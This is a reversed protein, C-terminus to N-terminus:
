HSKRRLFDPILALDKTPGITMNTAIQPIWTTTPQITMTTGRLPNVDTTTHHLRYGRCLEDHVSEDGEEEEESKVKEILKVQSHLRIDFSVKTKRKKETHPQTQIRGHKTRREPVHSSFLGKRFRHIIIPRAEVVPIEAWPIASSVNNSEIRGLFGFPTVKYSIKATVCFTELYTTCSYDM